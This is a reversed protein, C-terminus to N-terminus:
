NYEYYDADTRGNWIYDFYEQCINKSICGNSSLGTFSKFYEGVMSDENDKERIDRKSNSM